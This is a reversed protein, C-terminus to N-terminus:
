SVMSDPAAVVPLEPESSSVLPEVKVPDDPATCTAVPVDVNPLLPTMVIEVPAVM